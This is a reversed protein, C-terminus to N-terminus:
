DSSKEIESNAGWESSGDSFFEKKWIPAEYKVRDIIYQNAAYAEKRHSAATVVIVATQAIEVKGVRHQCVAEHLDFKSKADMLISAISEEALAVHAEYELFDVSQGKHHNRVDGLFIVQAGAKDHHANYVMQQVDIPDYSIFESM